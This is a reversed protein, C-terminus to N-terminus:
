GNPVTEGAVKLYLAKAPNLEDNLTLDEYAFVFDDATFPTGDSWKMGKRLHFTFATGDESTEWGKAIHPMLTFGDLDYYVMHDHMIRDINQRDIPGSFGRKWTGGYQGIREITPVVLPEEPLRDEVLPLKGEAVLKSLEPAENFITPLQGTYIFSFGETNVPGRNPADLENASKLDNKKSCGLLVSILAAKFIVTRGWNECYSKM